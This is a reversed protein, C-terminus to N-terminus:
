ITIDKKRRLHTVDGPGIQAGSLHQIVAANFAAWVRLKVKLCVCECVCM